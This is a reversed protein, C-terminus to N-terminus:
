RARASDPDHSRAASDGPAGAGGPGPGSLWWETVNVLAGRLDMRLGRVRDRVLYLEPYYYLFGWPQDDRLIRQLEAYLPRAEEHSRAALARDILTDAQPNSYGAFQFPGAAADSHFIDRLNLRFDSEWGLLIADFDRAQGTFDQVMTGFDTPRQDLTVGIAELDADILAALDRNIASTAPFKLEIRFPRGDPLQLRGNGNRDAIGAAALLARASDRSHPLPAITSDFAWHQPAIPGVAVEGLGSRVTRLLQERDVAYGLARRVRADGLVGRRHNWGILAYQRSPRVVGTIGAASDLEAFREAQPNLLLDVTGTQLETIQAMADPVIRWVIRDIWPRGGLEAPFDPNADFVWRDNARYEVFRFPGNGVPHRNFAAQRMREAPISDLLHAPMIPLFPLGALPEYHPRYRLRVTLSDIEEAGLWATFYEANPYGTLTDQARDFTFVVDRARTPTGDHWRVDARLHFVAASDGDLEWSRALAPEFSLDPAYHVLPLFLLFRNVEQTVKEGAILANAADLDAPGAIVLTGGRQPRDGAANRSARDACAAGFVLVLALAAFLRRCGTM